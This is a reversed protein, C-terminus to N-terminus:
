DIYASFIRERGLTQAVCNFGRPRLPKEALADETRRQLEFHFDAAAGPRVDAAFFCSEEVRDFAIAALWAILRRERGLGAKEALGSSDVVHFSQDVNGFNNELTASGVGANAGLLGGSM